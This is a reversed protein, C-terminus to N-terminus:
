SNFEVALMSYIAHDVFRSYLWECQRLRAEYTFGVREAIARSKHNDEACRLEVKHLKLEDFGIKMLEAIVETMIGRGTYVEALWYGISAKRHQNDIEHFGAVGCLLGEHIVAFHAASGATANDMSSQIFRQTDDRSKIQDLWPLWMKLYSRNAETLEYLEQTHSLSLSEIRIEPKM